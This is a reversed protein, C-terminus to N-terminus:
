FMPNSELKNQAKVTETVEYIIVSVESITKNAELYPQFILNFYSKEDIGEKQTLYLLENGYFPKGTTFAMNLLFLYDVAGFEPLVDMLKKGEVNSAMGWIKKIKENALIIVMEKGKFIAIACPLKLLLLSYRKENDSVQQVLKKEIALQVILTENETVDVVHQLVYKVKNFEDLVPTHIPQWYRIIFEGEASGPKPITYKIVDLKEGIKNEVVRILSARISSVDDASADSLNDSFLHCLDRGVIDEKAKQTAQLYANSVSLIIFNLDLMIILQPSQEFSAKFDITKM